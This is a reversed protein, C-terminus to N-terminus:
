SAGSPGVAGSPGSPGRAGSPGSPGLAGTAGTLGIPGSPGSPGSSGLVGGNIGGILLWHNVSDCFFIDATPGAYTRVWIDGSGPACRSPLVPGTGIHYAPGGQALLNGSPKIVLYFYGILFLLFCNIQWFRSM